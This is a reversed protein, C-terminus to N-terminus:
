CVRCHWSVFEPEKQFTWVSREEGDVFPDISHKQKWKRFMSIVCLCMVSGHSQCSSTGGAQRLQASPSFRSPLTCRSRLTQDTVSKCHSELVGFSVWGTTHCPWWVTENRWTTECGSSPIFNLWCVKKKKETFTLTCKRQHVRAAPSHFCFERLLQCSSIM